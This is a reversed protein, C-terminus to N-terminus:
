PPPILGKEKAKVIAERRNGVELKEYIKKLHTKVTEPSIYLKEAIEKNYLYQALLEVIEIERNTLPNALPQSTPHSFSSSIIDAQDAMAPAVRQNDGRFVALLQGIFNMAINKALLQKLMRKMPLGLEVFPRTWDDPKALTVAEELVSLAEDILGMRYGAMAQMITIEIMQCTNQWTKVKQRLGKLREMAENLSDNSGIAILVRCETIIPIELFFLMIPNAHKNSISRQWRSASDIDGRLLALRAECSHVIEFTEPVKTWQAYELALKMTEDAEDRNGSLQHTIALGVIADVAARIDMNYRNEMVLSFYHRTANLNFMQFSANGQVYMAWTDVFTIHNSRIERLRMSEQFAKLCTGDLMHIFCLGLTLRSLNTEEQSDPNYIADQLRQLASEKQGNLHLAMSTWFKIEVRLRLFSSVPLLEASKALSKLSLEGDSQFYYCIGQFFKVESLLISETSGEALLIEIREVIPSIAAINFAAFLIWAQSLLLEPQEQKIKNPFIDLWTKLIDWQDADIAARRNREVLRVATLKEGATFTHKIAEDLLGENAFWKGARSYLDAIEESSKYRKLKNQLLQQFLHHYRFWKDDADLGIIFMNEKKLLAIFGFSDIEDNDPEICARKCLTDCLPACFRDLISTELLCNRIQPSQSSLVEYFLYEMVFRPSGKLESFIANFNNRHRISLIMLRLGTIWGESREMLDAIITKEIKGQTMHTLFEITEMETFRLDHLRIEEFQGQARLKVMPLFPDSRSIVVLHLTKPPYRLLEAILDHIKKNKVSHFDDLVLIFDQEILALENALIGVIVQLPPSVASRLLDSSKTMASPFLAEVAYIFYNIFGYLDNDDKDLLISSNPWEHKALWCNVLTSKGYGAPAIVNQVPLSRNKELMEVLRPRHVYYEPVTFSPELKTTVIEIDKERCFQEQSVSERFQSVILDTIIPSLYVEGNMVSRLGKAVGEPESGKVIYGLAGAKFMNTVFIKESHLSLAIVKTKPFDSVILKTAEIGNLDPMTIDMIVIDPSLQQILELAKQGNGAEGIVKMDKEDELLSRLGKRFIPHDDVLLISTRMNM